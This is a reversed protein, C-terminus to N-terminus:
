GQEERGQEADEDLAHWLIPSLVRRRKSAMHVCYHREGRVEIERVFGRDRLEALLAHTEGEEGGLFAMVETFTVAERRIMWTLASSQPQPLALLDSPQLGTSSEPEELDPSPHNSLSRGM